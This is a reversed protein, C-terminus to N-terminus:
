YLKKVKLGGTYIGCGFIIRDSRDLIEESLENLELIIAGIASAIWEAYLKTSGYKSYYVVLTEGM